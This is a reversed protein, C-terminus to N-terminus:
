EHDGGKTTLHAKQATLEAIRDKLYYKDLVIGLDEDAVKLEEIKADLRALQLQQELESLFVDEDFERHGDANAIIRDEPSDEHIHWEDCEVYRTYKSILDKLTKTVM